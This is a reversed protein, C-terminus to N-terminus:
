FYKIKIKERGRKIITKITNLSKKFKKAIEQYSYGEALMLFIEREEKKLKKLLIMKVDFDEIFDEIRDKIRDNCFYFKENFSFFKKKSRYFMKLENKAIQYLYPEIPKNEDFRNISKYFSIFVNQTLDETDEKKLVKKKIYQYIKSTYKKVIIEFYDIQGNKIKLIIEKDSM